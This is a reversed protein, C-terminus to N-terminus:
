EVIKGVEMQQKILDSKITMMAAIIYIYAIANYAIQFYTITFGTFLNIIIYILYLVVSLTIAYSSLNFISKYKFKVNIIKSIIYGIVSLLLVDLMIQILYSIYFFVFAIIAFIAYLKTLNGGSLYQLINEKNVSNLDYNKSLDEYTVTSEISNEDKIVIKDKLVVVVRQYDEYEEVEETSNKEADIIIGLYGFTDGKVIKKNEGQLELQGDKFSFDPFENQFDTIASKFESMVKWTLALTIILTFILVLKLIYKISLSTKEELFTKYGDFNIISDKFKKFFPTNKTKM